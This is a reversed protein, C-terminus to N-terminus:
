GGLWYRIMGSLMANPGVELFLRIGKNYMAEIQEQFKVPNALQWALMTRIADPENPYEAATTNAYVPISPANFTIGSLYENFPVASPSVLESHFATAVPLSRVKLGAEQLLKETADIQPTKGAIVVQKPSNINAICVGTKWTELKENLEEFNTMVATMSGPTSAAKTM